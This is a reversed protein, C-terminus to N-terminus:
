KYCFYIGKETEKTSRVRYTEEFVDNLLQLMIKGPDDITKLIEEVNSSGLNNSIDKAKILYISSIQQSRIVFFPETFKKIPFRSFCYKSCHNMEVLQHGHASSAESKDSTTDYESLETELTYQMKSSVLDSKKETFCSLCEDYDCGDVCHYYASGCLVDGSCVYCIRCSCKLIKAILKLILSAEELEQKLKLHIETVTSLNSDLAKKIATIDAGVQTFVKVQNQQTKIFSEIRMLRQQLHSCEIGDSYRLFMALNIIIEKHLDISERISQFDLSNLDHQVKESDTIDINIDSFLSNIKNIPLAELKLYEQSSKIILDTIVFAKELIKEPYDLLLNMEIMFYNSLYRKKLATRLFEFLELICLSMKPIDAITGWWEESHKECVLLMCTKAIYSPLTRGDM